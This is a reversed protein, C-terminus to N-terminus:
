EGKSIYINSTQIYVHDVFRLIESYSDSIFGILHDGGKGNIFLLKLAKYDPVFGGHKLKAMDMLIQFAVRKDVKTDFVLWVSNKNDGVNFAIFQHDHKKM